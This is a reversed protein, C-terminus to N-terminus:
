LGYMPPTPIETAFGGTVVSFFPECVTHTDTEWPLHLEGQLSNMKDEEFVTLTVTM